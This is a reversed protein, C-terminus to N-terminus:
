EAYAIFEHGGTCDPHVPSIDITVSTTKKVLQALQVYFISVCGPGKIILTYHGPRLEGFDFDGDRNTNVSKVLHLEDLNKVPWRYEYLMLKADDRAVDQRVWRSIHRLDGDHVGVVKGRLRTVQYFYEPAFTCPYALPSLAIMAIVVFLRPNSGPKAIM